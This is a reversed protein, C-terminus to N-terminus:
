PLPYLEGSYATFKSEDSSIAPQNLSPYSALHERLKGFSHYRGLELVRFTRFGSSKRMSVKAENNLGEVV